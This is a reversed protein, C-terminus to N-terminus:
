AVHLADLYSLHDIGHVLGDIGRTALAKAVAMGAVGAQGVVQPAIQTQLDM